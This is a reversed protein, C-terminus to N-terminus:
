VEDDEVVIHREDAERWSQKKEGELGGFTKLVAPLSSFKESTIINEFGLKKAEKIRKEITGIKRIEGLLSVEGVAVTQSLAVGRLSSFISLCVALDVGPDVVKMGGAINVFVDYTDLRLNCQKQLVALLLELRKHDIGSAVRRPMPLKSYVVLSQVELLFPRTGEM